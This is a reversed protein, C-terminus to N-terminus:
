KSYLKHVRNERKGGEEHERYLEHRCIYFSFWSYMCFLLDREFNRHFEVNVFSSTQKRPVYARRNNRTRGKNEKFPCTRSMYSLVVLVYTKYSGAM